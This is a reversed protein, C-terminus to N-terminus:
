LISEIWVEKVLDEYRMKLQAKADQKFNRIDESSPRGNEWMKVALPYIIGKIAFKEPNLSRRAAPNKTQIAVRLKGEVLRGQVYLSIYFLPLTLVDRGVMFKYVKEENFKKDRKKQEKEQEKRQQTLEDEEEEKEEALALQEPIPTHFVFIMFMIMLAYRMTTIKGM